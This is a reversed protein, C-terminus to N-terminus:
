WLWLSSFINKEGQFYGCTLRVLQFHRYKSDNLQRSVIKLRLCLQFSVSQSRFGPFKKSFTKEPTLFIFLIGVSAQNTLGGRSTKEWKSATVNASELIEQWTSKEKWKGASLRFRLAQKKTVSLSLGGEGGKKEDDPNENADCRHLM